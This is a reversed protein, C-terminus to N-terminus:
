SDSLPITGQLLISSRFKSKSTEPDTELCNPGEFKPSNLEPNALKSKMKQSDFPRFFESQQAAPLKSFDPHLWQTIKDTDLIVPMRNHCGAVLANAQTTLITYSEISQEEVGIWREWIGAMLFTSDDQLSFHMPVKTDAEKIWEYFGDAPILCRRRQFAARFSPKEAVTEARANIIPSSTTPTKSWSPVLGWRMATPQLLDPDSLSKRLVLNNQTPAVNFRPEPDQFKEPPKELAYGGLKEAVNGLGKRLTYRGCM